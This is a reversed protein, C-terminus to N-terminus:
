QRSAGKTQLLEAIGIGVKCNEELISHLGGKGLRAGVAEGKGLVV